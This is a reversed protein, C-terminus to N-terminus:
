HSQWRLAAAAERQETRVMELSGAGGRGKSFWKTPLIVKWIKGIYDPKKPKPKAEAGGELLAADKAKKAEEKSKKFLLKKVVLLAPLLLLFRAPVSDRAPSNFIARLLALYKNGGPSAMAGVPPTLGTKGSSDIGGRLEPRDSFNHCRISRPIIFTSPRPPVTAAAEWARLGGHAAHPTRLGCHPRHSVHNSHNLIRFGSNQHQIM